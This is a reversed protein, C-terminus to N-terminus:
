PEKWRRVIYRVSVEGYAPTACTMESLTYSHLCVDDVNRVSRSIKVYAVIHETARVRCNACRDMVYSYESENIDNLSSM